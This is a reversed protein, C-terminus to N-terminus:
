QSNINYVNMASGGQTGSGKLHLSSANMGATSGHTFTVTGRPGNQQPAQAGFGHAGDSGVGGYGYGRSYIRHSGGSNSGHHGQMAVISYGWEYTGKHQMIKDQSGGSHPAWNQFGKWTANTYINPVWMGGNGIDGYGGSTGNMQYGHQPENGGMRHGVRGDRRIQFKTTWTTGSDWTTIYLAKLSADDNGKIEIGVGNGSGNNNKFWASYGSAVEKYVTLPYPPAATGIGVLGNARVCM